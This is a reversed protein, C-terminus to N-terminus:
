GVGYARAEDRKTMAFYAQEYGFDYDCLSDHFHRPFASVLWAEDGKDLADGCRDCLWPGSSLRGHVVLVIEGADRYHQEKRRAKSEHESGHPPCFLYPM